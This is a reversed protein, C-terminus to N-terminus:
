KLWGLEVAKNLAKILNNAHEKGVIKLVDTQDEITLTNPDHQVLMYAQYENINTGVGDAFIIKSVTETQKRVDFVSM